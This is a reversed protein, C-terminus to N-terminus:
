LLTVDRLDVVLDDCRREAARIAREAVAAGAVDVEGHLAVTRKRSWVVPVPVDRSKQRELERLVAHGKRGSQDSGGRRAARRFLRELHRSGLRNDKAAGPFVRGTM